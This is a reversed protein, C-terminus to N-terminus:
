KSEISTFEDHALWSKLQMMGKTLSLIMNSQSQANSGQLATEALYNFLSPLSSKEVKESSYLPEMNRELRREVTRRLNERQERFQDAIQGLVLEHKRVIQKQDRSALMLYAESSKQVEQWAQVCKTIWRHCLSIAVNCQKAMVGFMALESLILRALKATYKNALEPSSDTQLLSILALSVDDM